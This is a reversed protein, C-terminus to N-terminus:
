AESRARRAQAGSESMTSDDRTYWWAWAILLAQFPLRIWNLAGAGEKAGFLPVDHLAVHINAPFVAILLAITGWAALRRTQPLLLGLGCMVEAVGSLFVLEAHAPLYDPMMPLYADARLFHMSGAFVYFAGQVYLLVRKAVSM